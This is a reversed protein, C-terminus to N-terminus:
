TNYNRTGKMTKHVDTNENAIIKERGVSNGKINRRIKRVNRKYSRVKHIDPFAKM